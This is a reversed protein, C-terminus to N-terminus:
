KLYKKLLYGYNDIFIDVVDDVFDVLQKREFVLLADDELRDYVKDLRNFIDDIKTLDVEDVYCDFGNDKIYKRLYDVDLNIKYKRILFSNSRSYEKYIGKKSLKSFFSRATVINGNKNIKVFYFNDRETVNNYESDLFTIVKPLFIRFYYYDTCLHFFYALTEIHKKIQKEYKELFVDCNPFELIKNTNRRFHTVRKSKQINRKNIFEDLSYDIDVQKIDPILNGIIFKTKDDDKLNLREILKKACATHGIFSPMM